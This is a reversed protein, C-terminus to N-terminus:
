ARLMADRLARAAPSLRAVGLHLLSLTRSIPTRRDAVEVLRGEALDRAVSARSLLAQGMGAEVHAKVAQLSSLEMAVEVGPFNRDLLARHNAGPPLTLFPLREPAVGAGCVLVLEDELWPETGEGPVVALDLEGAEVRQRAPDALSERLYLRIAPHATRFATLVPPLLVSCATAGAGLRVEGAALGEVEAVARRGRDVAALAAEAWPVLARGAATLRAGGPGRDFLRAGFADELRHIAATLAPQSLHARRAAATFTGEEAIRLFLHLADLMLM